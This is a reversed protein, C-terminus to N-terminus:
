RSAPVKTVMADRVIFFLKPALYWIPWSAILLVKGVVGALTMESAAIVELDEYTDAAGMLLKWCHNGILAYAILSLIFIGYLASDTIQM